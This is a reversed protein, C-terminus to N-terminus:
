LSVLFGLCKVKRLNSIGRKVSFSYVIRNAFIKAVAAVFTIDFIEDYIATIRFNNRELAFIFVIRFSHSTNEECNTSKTGIKIM